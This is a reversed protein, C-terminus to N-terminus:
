LVEFFGELVIGNVINNLLEKNNRKMAEIEKRSFQFLQIKHKLRDEFASMDVDKKIPTEIFIDVDSSPINESKRFSGFLIIAKPHNFTENLFELLGSSRLRFINYFLKADKYQRSQTNSAFVRFGKSHGTHLLGRAVIGTLYKSLTSPAYGTLRAIERLHFTREPDDFFVRLIDMKGFVQGNKRVGTEKQPRKM